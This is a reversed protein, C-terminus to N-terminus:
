SFMEGSESGCGRGSATPDESSGSLGLVDGSGKVEKVVSSM